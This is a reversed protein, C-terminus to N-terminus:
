RKERVPTQDHCAPTGLWAFQRRGFLQALQDVPEFMLAFGGIGAIAFLGELDVAPDTGFAAPLKLTLVQTKQGDVVLVAIM